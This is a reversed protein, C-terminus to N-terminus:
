KLDDRAREANAKQQQLAELRQVAREKEKNAAALQEQEFIYCKVADAPSRTGKGYKGAM